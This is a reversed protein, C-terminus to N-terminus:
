SPGPYFGPNWAVEWYFGEPDQFYGSYGGWFVNQPRKVIKAGVKEAKAIVQDVEEKSQGNYAITFGRFGDGEASVGVDAALEEWPYLALWTGNLMFFAVNGEFKMKPFGLGQEYFHVAKELDRVGLTILNMRPQM